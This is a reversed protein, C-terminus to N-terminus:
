PFSRVQTAPRAPRGADAQDIPHGLAQRGLTTLHWARVGPFGDVSKWEAWGRAQCARKTSKRIASTQANDRPGLDRLTELFKLQHDSPSGRFSYRRAYGVM